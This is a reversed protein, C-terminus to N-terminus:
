SDNIKHLCTRLNLHALEREYITAPNSRVRHNKSIAQILEACEEAHILAQSQEGYFDIIHRQSPINFVM